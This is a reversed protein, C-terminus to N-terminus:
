KVLLTGLLSMALKVSYCHCIHKITHKHMWSIINLHLYFIRGCLINGKYEFYLIILVCLFYMFMNPFYGKTWYFLINLSINPIIIHIMPYSQWLIFCQWHTYETKIQNIRKNESHLHVDRFIRVKNPIMINANTINSLFKASVKIPFHFGEM